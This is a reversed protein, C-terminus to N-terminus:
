VHQQSLDHWFKVPKTRQLILCLQSFASVASAAAGEGCSRLHCETRLMLQHCGVPNRIATLSVIKRSMTYRAVRRRWMHLARSRCLYKSPRDFRRLTLHRRAHTILDNCTTMISAQSSTLKRFGADTLM